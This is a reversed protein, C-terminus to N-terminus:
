SRAARAGGGRADGADFLAEATGNPADPARLLNQLLWGERGHIPAVSLIGVLAGEREAVFLPRDPLFALPDVRALFGLPALERAGLWREVFGRLADRSRRGGRAAASRRRDRAGARGQRARAPAARAPQPQRAPAAGWRRAGLGAARRGAAVAAAVRDRLSGRDRLLVRAPERRAGGRM